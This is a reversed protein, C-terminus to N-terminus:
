PRCIFRCSVLRKRHRNVKDNGVAVGEEFEFEKRLGLVRVFWKASRRPDRVALGFHGVTGITFPVKM